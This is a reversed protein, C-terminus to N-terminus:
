SLVTPVPDMTSHRIMTSVGGSLPTRTPSAHLDMKSKLQVPSNTVKNGAIIRVARFVPGESGMIFSNGPSM